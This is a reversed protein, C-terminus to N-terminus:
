SGVWSPGRRGQLRQTKSDTCTFGLLTLFIPTPANLNHRLWGLTKLFLKITAYNIYLLGCNLDSGNSM